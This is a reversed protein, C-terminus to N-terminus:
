KFTSIGTRVKTSSVDNQVLQQIVHIYGSYQQLSSIADEIDTSEATFSDTDIRWLLFLNLLM